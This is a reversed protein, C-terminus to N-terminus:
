LHKLEEFNPCFIKPDINEGQLMCQCQEPNPCNECAWTHREKDLDSTKRFYRSLPINLRELMDGLFLSRIRGAMERRNARSFKFSRWMGIVMIFFLLVITIAWITLSLSHDDNFLFSDLKM